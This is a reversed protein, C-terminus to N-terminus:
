YAWKSAKKYISVFSIKYVGNKDAYMALSTTGSNTNKDVVKVHLKKNNVTIKDIRYGTGGLNLYTYQYNEIGIGCRVM